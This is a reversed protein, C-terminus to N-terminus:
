GLNSYLDTSKYDELFLSVSAQDWDRITVIPTLNMDHERAYLFAFTPDFCIKKDGQEDELLFRINFNDDHAHDHHIGYRVLSFCIHNKQKRIERSIAQPFSVLDLQSLTPGAYVERIQLPMRDDNLKTQQGIEPYHDTTVFESLIDVARRYAAVNAFRQVRNSFIVQPFDTPLIYLGTRSGLQKSRDFEKDIQFYLWGGPLFRSTEPLIPFIQLQEFTYPGLKACVEIESASFTQRRKSNLIFDDVLRYEDVSFFHYFSEFVMWGYTNSDETTFDFEIRDLFVSLNSRRLASRMLDILLEAGAESIRSIFVKEPLFRDVFEDFGIQLIMQHFFFKADSCIDFDIGEGPFFTEISESSLHPLVREFLAFGNSSLSSFSIPKKEFLRNIIKQASDFSAFLLLLESFLIFSGYSLERCNLQDPLLEIIENAFSIDAVVRDAFQRGELITLQEWDSVDIPKHETEKFQVATKEAPDIAKLLKGRRIQQWFFHTVYSIQHTTLFQASRLETMENASIVQEGLTL